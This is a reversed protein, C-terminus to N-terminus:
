KPSKQSAALGKRGLLILLTGLAFLLFASPEPTAVAPDLSVNDFFAQRGYEEESHFILSANIPKGVLDPYLSTNLTVTESQLGSSSLQNGNILLYAFPSTGPSPFVDSLTPAGSGLAIGVDLVPLSQSLGISATLSYITNAAFVGLNDSVLGDLSGNEPVIPTDYPPLLYNHDLNVAVYQSGDVGTIIPGASGDNLITRVNDTFTPSATSSFLTWGAPNGYGPATVEFSGNGVTISNACLPLTALMLFVFTKLFTKGGIQSCSLSSALEADAGRM